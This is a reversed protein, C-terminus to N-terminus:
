LFSVNERKIKELERKRTKSKEVKRNKSLDVSGIRKKVIRGDQQTMLGFDIFCM